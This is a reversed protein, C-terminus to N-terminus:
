KAPTLARTQLFPKMRLSQSPKTKNFMVVSCTEGSVRKTLLVRSKRISVCLSRQASQERLERIHSDVLSKLPCVVFNHCLSPIFLRVPVPIQLCWPAVSIYNVKWTRNITHRLCGQSKHSRSLREKRSTRHSRRDRSFAGRTGLKLIEEFVGNSVYDM